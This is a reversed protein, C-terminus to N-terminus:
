QPVKAVLADVEPDAGAKVATQAFGLPSVL